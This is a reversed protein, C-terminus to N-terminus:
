RADDTELLLAFAEDTPEDDPTLYGAAFATSVTGSEFTAPVEAVPDGGGAPRVALDYADADVTVYGGSEGFAVDEFLTTEGGGATVDVAPADPAAHVLRVRAHGEEVPGNDDELVLPRFTGESREGVAAATYDAGPTLSVDGEAAVTDPDGAATIRVAHQGPYLHLYDSVAGFSVDELVRHEDVYVDVNPADPSVHAIRLRADEPDDAAERDVVV